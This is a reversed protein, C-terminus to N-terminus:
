GFSRACRLPVLGRSVSNIKTDLGGRSRGLAERDGDAAVMRTM